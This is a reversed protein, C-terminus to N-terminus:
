CCLKIRRTVNMAYLEIAIGSLVVILLSNIAYLVVSVTLIGLLLCQKLLAALLLNVVNVVVHHLYFKFIMNVTNVVKLSTFCVMLFHDSVNPVGLFALLYINTEVFVEYQNSVCFMSSAM